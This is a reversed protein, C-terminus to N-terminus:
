GWGQGGDRPLPHRLTSAPSSPLHSVQLLRTIHPVQLDGQGRGRRGGPLCVGELQEGLCTGWGLLGADRGEQQAQAFM